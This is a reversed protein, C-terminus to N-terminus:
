CLGPLREPAISPYFLGVIIWVDPYQHVTGVYFHLDRKLIMELEYKNRFVRRWDQGHKNSWARYSQGLEWDTCSLNHGNCEADECRFGYRFKYPIKELIRPVGKDSFSLQSLKALESETWDANEEPEIDFTVEKPKFFGLTPYGNNQQQRQLECLSSSMLPFLYDKRAQWYNDTTLPNKLVRISDVNVKYSEPRFDSSRTVEAEILQYKKFQKDDELFRTPIPFLRIWEGDETIGATCSVEVDKASPTPYTRVTILIKKKTWDSPAVM